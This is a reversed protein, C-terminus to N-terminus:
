AASEHDQGGDNTSGISKSSKHKRKRKIRTLSNQIENKDERADTDVGSLEIPDQTISASKDVGTLQKKSKKVSLPNPGKLGKTKKKKKEGGESTPAEGNAPTDKGEMIDRKRKTGQNKLGERLKGRELGEKVSASAEAMPEM